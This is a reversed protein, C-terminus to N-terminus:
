RDDDEIWRRLLESAGRPDDKVLKTVEENLEQYRLTHEDVERAVLMSESRQAQGVASSGVALLPEEGAEVTEQELEAMTRATLEASRRAIRTLMFLSMMALAGLGLPPGYSKAMGLLDATDSVPAAGTGGSSVLAWGGSEASWTMDPFVDVQVDEPGTAQIIKEVSARVRVVHQERMQTFTPDDDKVEKVDSAGTVLGAVFSRPIGVAATVRKRSLPIEEVTKAEVLQPAYFETTSDETTSSQGKGGGTVALGVNSQVGPESPQNAASSESSKTTESKPQPKDYKHSETRRRSAELEVAVQVRVGPIYALQEEIKSRLHDENRKVNDLYDFSLVNDPHPLEHSRGTRSDRVTVAYPKLGAVAGSVLKAFGEVMDMTMERGPALTVDVSATPVDNPMGLRRRSQPNIIVSAKQVFPTTAIIKALENGRAYNYAFDRQEPSLFPNQDNVAAEMDFLSGDPLAGASHILRLANHRDAARILLRTGVTQHRIGNARLADEAATLEEFSFESSVLPVMEPTTSWQLLWLLSGAILVACLGIAVRQSVNLM